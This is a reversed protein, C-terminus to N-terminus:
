CFWWFCLSVRKLVLFMCLEYPLVVAHSWPWSLKEAKWPQYFKQPSIPLFHDTEKFHSQLGSATSGWKYFPTMFNKFYTKKEDFNCLSKLFLISFIIIIFRTVMMTCWNDFSVNFSDFFIKFFKLIIEM